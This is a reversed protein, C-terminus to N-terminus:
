ISKLWIQTRWFLKCLKFIHENKIWTGFSSNAQKHQQSYVDCVCAYILHASWFCPYPYKNHMLICLYDLKQTHMHVCCGVCLWFCSSAWLCELRHLSVSPSDDSSHRRPSYHHNGAEVPTGYMIWLDRLSRRRMKWRLRLVATSAFLGTDATGPSSSVLPWGWHWRLYDWATMWGRVLTDKRWRLLQYVLSPSHLGCSVSAWYSLTM